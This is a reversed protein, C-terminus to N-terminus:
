TGIRWITPIPTTTWMSKINMRASSMTSSWLRRRSEDWKARSAWFRATDLIMEYGYQRMFERDGTAQYYQWVAYSVDATIHHEILGTLVPMPKGTVVDAGGWLPTAEGDTIWATEWPYM